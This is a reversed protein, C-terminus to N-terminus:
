AALVAYACRICGKLRVLFVTVWRTATNKCVYPFPIRLNLPHAILVTHWKFLFIGM